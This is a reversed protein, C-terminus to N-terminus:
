RQKCDVLLVDKICIEWHHQLFHCYHAEFSTCFMFQQKLFNNNKILEYLLRLAFSHNPFNLQGGNLLRETTYSVRFSYGNELISEQIITSQFFIQLCNDEQTKLTSIRAFTTKGIGIHSGQVIHQKKKIATTAKM